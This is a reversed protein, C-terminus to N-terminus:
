DYTAWFQLGNGATFFVVGVTTLVGALWRRANLTNALAGTGRAAGDVVRSAVVIALDFLLVPLVVPFAGGVLIQFAVTQFRSPDGEMGAGGRFILDDLAAAQLAVWGLPVLLVFVILADPWITWWRDLDVSAGRVWRVGLVLATWIAAVQLLEVVSAVISRRRGSHLWPRDTVRRVWQAFAAAEATAWREFARLREEGILQPALLLGAVFNLAIGFRNLGQPV